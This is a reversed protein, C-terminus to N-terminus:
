KTSARIFADVDRAFREPDEVFMFHGNDPYEILRARPIAATLAKQPGIAAQFDKGGAIVLVPASIRRPEAFRYQMLGQAMLARGMEGSNSVGEANDLADVREGVAPDPFM